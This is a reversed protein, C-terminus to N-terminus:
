LRGIGDRVTKLFKFYQEPFVDIEMLSGCSQCKIKPLNIDRPENAETFHLNREILEEHFSNCAECYYPVFLSQVVYPSPIFDKFNNMQDIIVKPAKVVSIVCNPNLLKIGNMWQLWLRIGGSNIMSVEKLDLILHSCGETHHLPFISIEIIPGSLQFTKESGSGFTVVNFARSFKNM